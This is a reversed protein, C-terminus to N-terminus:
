FMIRPGVALRFVVPSFYLQDGVIGTGERTILHVRAQALVAVHVGADIGLDVGGTAGFRNNVIARFPCTPDSCLQQLSDLECLKEEATTKV